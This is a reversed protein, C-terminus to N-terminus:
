RHRVPGAAQPHGPGVAGRNGGHRRHGANQRGRQGRRRVDQRRLRDLRTRGDPTFTLFWRRRPETVLAGGRARGTRVDWLRISGSAHDTTALLSDDPSFLMGNVTGPHGTLRGGLPRRTQADWLRIRGALDATALLTGRSAFEVDWISLGESPLLGLLRDTARDWIRVRHDPGGTALLRGDASVATSPAAALGGLWNRGPDPVMHSPGLQRYVTTDWLRVTGVGDVGALSRGDPAFVLDRANGTSVVFAEGTRRAWPLGPIGSAVEWLVVSGMEADTALTRGDPSFALANVDVRSMLPGGIPRGTALDWLQVAADESLLEGDSSNLTDEASMRGTVALRGDRSVALEHIPVPRGRLPPGAPRRTVTDWRRLTGDTNATLLTRGDPLYALENANEKLVARGPRALASLMAHRADPTPAMRWSAVSLLQSLVPDNDGVALSQGALRRSASLDREHRTADVQGLYLGLAAVASLATLGAVVAALRPRSYRYLRRRAQRVTSVWVLTDDEATRPDAHRNAAPAIVLLRRRHAAELKAPMGSVEGICGGPTLTGTVAHRERPLRLWRSLSRGAGAVPGLPRLRGRAPPGLLEDLLVAFAAGLSGGVVRRDWPEDTSLRWVLCPMARRAGAHRQWAATLADQFAPDAGFAVMVRPDPFLGPPGGGLVSMELRGALGARRGPTDFLVGVGRTRRVRVRHGTLLWAQLAVLSRAPGGPLPDLLQAIRRVRPPGEVRGLDGNFSGTPLVHADLWADVTSRLVEAAQEDSGPGADALLEALRAVGLVRRAQAGLGTDTDGTDPALDDM